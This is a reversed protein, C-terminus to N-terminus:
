RSSKSPNNSWDDMRGLQCRYCFFRSHSAGYAVVAVSLVKAAMSCLARARGGYGHGTMRHLCGSDSGKVETRGLMM